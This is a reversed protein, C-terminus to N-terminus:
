VLALKFLNAAAKGKEGHHFLSVIFLVLIGMYLHRLVPVRSFLSHVVYYGVILLVLIVVAHQWTLPYMHKNVLPAVELLYDM